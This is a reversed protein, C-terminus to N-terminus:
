RREKYLEAKFTPFHLEPNLALSNTVSLLDPLGTCFAIPLQVALAAEATNTWMTGRLWSVCQILQAFRSGGM